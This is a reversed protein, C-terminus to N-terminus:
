YAAYNEGIQYHFTLKPSKIETHYNRIYFYSIAILEVTKVHSNNVQNFRKCRRRQLGISTEPQATTTNTDTRYRVYLLASIIILAYTEILIGQM